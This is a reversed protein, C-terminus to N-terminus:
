PKRPSWNVKAREPIGTGNRSQKGLRPRQRKVIKDRLNHVQTCLVFTKQVRDECRLFIPKVMSFRLMGRKSFPAFDAATYQM